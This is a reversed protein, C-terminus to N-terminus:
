MTLYPTMLEWQTDRVLFSVARLVEIGEFRIYRLNGGELMLSLEGVRLEQLEVPPEATGYLTILEENTM